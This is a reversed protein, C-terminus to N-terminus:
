LEEQLDQFVENVKTVRRVLSGPDDQFGLGALCVPNEKQDQNVMKELSEVHVLSELNVRKEKSVQVRCDQPERNVRKVQIM